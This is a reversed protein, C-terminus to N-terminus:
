KSCMASCQYVQEVNSSNSALWNSDDVLGAADAFDVRRAFRPIRMAVVRSELVCDMPPVVDSFLLSRLSGCGLQGVLLTRRKDEPGFELIRLSEVVDAKILTSAITNLLILLSRSADISTFCTRVAKFGCVVLGRWPKSADPRSKDLHFHLHILLGVSGEVLRLCHRNEEILHSNQM